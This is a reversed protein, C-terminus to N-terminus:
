RRQKDLAGRTLDHDDRIGVLGGGRGSSSVGGLVGVAGCVLLDEFMHFCDPVSNRGEKWDREGREGVDEGGCVDGEGGEEEKREVRLASVTSM